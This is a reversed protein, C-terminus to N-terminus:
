LFPEPLDVRHELRRDLGPLLADANAAGTARRDLPARVEARVATARDALLRDDCAGVASRGQSRVCLEARVAPRGDGLLRAATVSLGAFGVLRHQLRLARAIGPLALQHGGLGRGLRWRWRRRRERVDLAALARAAARRVFWELLVAELAAEPQRHRAPEDGHEGRGPAPANGPV